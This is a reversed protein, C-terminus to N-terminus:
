TEQQDTHYYYNWSGISLVREEGCYKELAENMFTLFFPSTVVDDEVVIVKGYQQIVQTVGSIVSNALGKNNDSEMIHVKRCWQQERIVQRVATIAALQAATAQAAPGDSFIFLESEGAGHNAALAELTRRTFAPRNYVFLVIPAHTM